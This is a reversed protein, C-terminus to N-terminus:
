NIYGFYDVRVPVKGSLGAGTYNLVRVRVNLYPAALWIGSRDVLPISIATPRQYAFGSVLTDRQIVAVYETSAPDKAKPVSLSNMEHLQLTDTVTSFDVFEKGVDFTYSSDVGGTSKYTGTVSVALRVTAYSTPNRLNASVVLFGRSAKFVPIPSVTALSSGVLISDNIIGRHKIFFDSESDGSSIMARGQSDVRSGNTANQYYTTKNLTNYDALTVAVMTLLGLAIVALRIKPHKM